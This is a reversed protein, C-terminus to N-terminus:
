HKSVCQIKMAMQKGDESMAVKVIKYSLTALRTKKSLQKACKLELQAKTFSFGAKSVAIKAVTTEECSYSMMGLVMMLVVMILKKM